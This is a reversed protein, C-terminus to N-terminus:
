DRDREEYAQCEDCAAAGVVAFPAAVAPVFFVAFVAYVFVLFFAAAFVAFRVEV